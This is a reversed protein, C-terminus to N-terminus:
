KKFRYELPQKSLASLNETVWNVVHGLGQDIGVNPKWSLTEYSSECDLFYRHDKGVRDSGLRVVDDFSRGILDCCKEVIRRISYFDADSFHYVKGPAARTLCRVLADCFDDKYIFARESLGGGDLELTRGLLGYLITRPIIRYLQQGEGYFNAFRGIVCDLGWHSNLALLHQDFAAHSVAYPTSPNIAADVSVSGAVSGYVEPTSVKLYRGSWGNDLLLKLFESKAALDTQYWVAPNDWSPAVMGQNAFDIVWDVKKFDIVGTLHLLGTTIDCRVERYLPNRINRIREGILLNSASRVTGIVKVGKAMLADCFCSGAFSSSALVLATRDGNALLPESKKM